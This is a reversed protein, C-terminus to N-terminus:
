GQVKVRSSYLWGTCAKGGGHTWTICAKDVGVQVQSSRSLIYAPEDWWNFLHVGGAAATESLNDEKVVVRNNVSLQLIGVSTGSLLGSNATFTVEGRVTKTSQGVLYVCITATPYPRPLIHVNSRVTECREGQVAPSSAAAQGRPAPAADAPLSSIGCAAITLIAIIPATRRV